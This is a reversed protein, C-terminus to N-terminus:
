RQDRRGNNDLTGFALATNQWSMHLLVEDCLSCKIRYMYQNTVKTTVKTHACNGNRKTKTICGLCIPFKANKHYKCKEEHCVQCTQMARRGCECVASQPSGKEDNPRTNGPPATPFMLAQEPDPTWEPARRPAENDVRIEEKTSSDPSFIIPLGKPHPNETENSSSTDSGRTCGKAAVSLGLVFATAISMM